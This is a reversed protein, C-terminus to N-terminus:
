RSGDRFRNANTDRAFHSPLVSTMVVITSVTVASSPALLAIRKRSVVPSECLIMRQDILADPSNAM